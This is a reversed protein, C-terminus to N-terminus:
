CFTDQLPNQSTRCAPPLALVTQQATRCDSCAQMAHVCLEHHGFSPTQLTKSVETDKLEDLRSTGIDAVRVRQGGELVVITDEPAVGAAVEVSAIRRLCLPQTSATSASIKLV